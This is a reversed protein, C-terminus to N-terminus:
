PNVLNLPCDSPPIVVRQAEGWNTLLLGLDAGDVREDFNSDSAAAVGQTPSSITMWPSTCLGTADCSSDVTGSGSDWFLQKRAVKMEVTGDSWARFIATGQYRFQSWSWYYANSGYWVITPGTQGLAASLLATAPAGAIAGSSASAKPLPAVRELVPWLGIGIGLVCLGFGTSIHRM